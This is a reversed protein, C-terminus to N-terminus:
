QMHNNRSGYDTVEANNWGEVHLLLNRALSSLFTRTNSSLLPADGHLLPLLIAGTNM